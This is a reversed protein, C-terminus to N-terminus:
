AVEVEDDIELDVLGDVIDEDEKDMKETAKEAWTSTIYSNYNDIWAVVMAFTEHDEDSTEINNIIDYSVKPVFYSDGNPLPREETLSVMNHQVPLRNTKVLKTIAEGIIKFAERNDIEWIFPTPDVSVPKGNDDTAGVLELTGILVRVRKIDKILTQMKEPLAAWDKIYGAPKGCNFGGMNDKLDDNLNDHMLTKMFFNPKNDKGKIFRKYMFRQAFQRINVSSAYYTPGNPVDLRYTGAAVVEMNVKKGNVEGLGMIAKHNIRLRPLTSSKEKSSVESTVGMAKVMAAFNNTDLTTLQTM